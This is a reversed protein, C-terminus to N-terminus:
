VVRHGLNRSRNTRALRPCVEARRVIGEALEGLDDPVAYDLNPQSRIAARYVDLALTRWFPFLQQERTRLAVRITVSNLCRPPPAM